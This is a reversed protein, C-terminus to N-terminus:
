SEARTFEFQTYFPLTTYPANTSRITVSFDYIGPETVPGILYRHYFGDATTGYNIFHMYKEEAVREGNFYAIGKGYGTVKLTVFFRGSGDNWVGYDYLEIKTVQPPTGGWGRPQVLEASSDAGDVLRMELEAAPEQGDPTGEVAAAMSVMSFLMLFALFASTFRKM